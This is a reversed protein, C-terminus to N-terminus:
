YTELRSAILLLVEDAVAPTVDDSAYCVRVNREPLALEAWAQVSYVDFIAAGRITPGDDRQPVWTPLPPAMVTDGDTAAEILSRTEGLFANASYTARQWEDYRRLLPSYSAQWILLVVLLASSTLASWRLRAEDYEVFGFLAEVLAGTLLAWGALPLLLYWPGVLGAAAYTLALLLIWLVGVIATKAPRGLPTRERSSRSRALAFTAVLGVVLLALLPWAAPAARMSPQPWVLHELLVQVARPAAAAMDSPSLSRHGGMGGLVLFRALMMIAAAALHLSSATAVHRLRQLGRRDSYLAVVVAVLIPIVFATEKSAIALLTAVAPWVAFGRSRLTGPSLQLWLALAMLGCCLLEPRRPPVPLVEFLLPSLLFALLGVTSGLVADAGLLRRLLAWVACACVALLLASTLQYGFPDLDWIAHDMAFTFNLLPRYFDGAYRGDMLSETFNGFFDALSQVRSSVILPYSDFGLLGYASTQRFLAGVLLAITALPVFRALPRRAM